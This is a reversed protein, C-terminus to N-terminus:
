VNKLNHNYHTIADLVATIDTASLTRIVEQGDVIHKLTKTVIAAQLVHVADSGANKIAQDALDLTDYYRSLQKAAKPTHEMMEKRARRSSGPYQM